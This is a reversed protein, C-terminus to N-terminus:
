SLHSLFMNIKEIVFCNSLDLQEEEHNIFFNIPILKDGANTNDEICQIILKMDKQNSYLTYELQIVKSLIYNIPLQSLINIYTYKTNDIVIPQENFKIDFIYDTKYSPELRVINKGDIFFIGDEESCIETIHKTQQKHLKKDLYPLVYILSKPLIHPFYIKM